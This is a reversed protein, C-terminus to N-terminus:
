LWGGTAQLPVVDNNGTVWIALARRSVNHTGTEPLTVQWSGSDSRYEDHALVVFEQPLTRGANEGAAVSQQIGFGLIAVHLVAAPESYDARLNQDNLTARLRGASEGAQPLADRSFWGRWENGNLVFGPTYVSRVRGHARYSAQRNSFDKSAYPDRWGLYDWYDVHFAAPVVKKWLREDTTFQNLWAEAPPCSSCGQSTFLELLHVRDTGSDFELANEAHVMGLGTFNLLLIGALWRRLM